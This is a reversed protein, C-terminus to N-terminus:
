NCTVLGTLRRLVAGWRPNVSSNLFEGGVRDCLVYDARSGDGLVVEYRVANPNQIDWGQDRLQADIKVRSFAETTQPM